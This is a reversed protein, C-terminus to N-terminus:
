LNVTSHFLSCLVIKTDTMHCLSTISTIMYINSGGSKLQQHWQSKACRKVNQRISFFYSNDYIKNHTSKDSFSDLIHSIM